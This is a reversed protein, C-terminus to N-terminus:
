FFGFVLFGIVINLLEVCGFFFEVILFVDWFGVWGDLVLDFRFLVWIEVVVIWVVGGDEGLGVIGGGVVRENFWFSWVGVVDVMWFKEYVLDEVVDEEIVDWWFEIKLVIEVVEVVGDVVVVDM